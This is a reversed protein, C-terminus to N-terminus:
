TSAAARALWESQGEKSPSRGARLILFPDLLVRVDERPDDDVVLLDAQLGPAIRGTRGACGLVDAATGTAARLADHAPMGLECMAALEGVLAPHPTACSGADTGAVIPIGADRAMAFSEVHAAVARQAKDAAYSPVGRDSGTAITRYIALTPCLATGNQRMLDVIEETLFNGHEVTDVGALVANRIGETGLAHAAVKLGFRHAERVAATIEDLTLETQGVDEGESRGYVGGTAALKIVRAGISVQRRVSRVVADVGDSALGWFPDHGGTMIITQGAAVISPGEVLGKDVAGAVTIAIDANGGLDRVTTVGARVQKLANAVARVTTFQEGEREVVAAPDPNGSWVLHVHMDILGPLVYRGELDLVAVDRGASDPGVAVIRDDEVLIDAGRRMDPNQGDWLTGGRLLLPRGM